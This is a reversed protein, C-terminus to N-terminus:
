PKRPKPSPPNELLEVIEPTGNKRAYEILTRPHHEKANPFIIDTRAGSEILLLIIRLRDLLNAAMMQMKAGSDTPKSKLIEMRGSKDIAWFLPTIGGSDPTDPRAGAALLLRVCEHSNATTAWHLPTAGVRHSKANVPLGKEILLKLTEANGQRAAFHLLNEGSEAIVKPNAGADLMVQLAEARGLGAATQLPTIHTPSGPIDPKGGSKLLAKIVRAGCHVAALDLASLGSRNLPEVKAGHELLLEVIRARDNELVQRPWRGQRDMNAVAAMLPTVGHDVARNVDAGHTILFEVGAVKEKMALEHLLTPRRATVKGEVLVEGALGICGGNCALEFLGSGDKLRADRDAGKAMLFRAMDQHGKECGTLLPTFGAEDRINIDEGEALLIEALAMSGNIAAAKFLRDKSAFRVLDHGGKQYIRKVIEDNGGEAACALVSRGENVEADLSANKSILMDVAVLSGCLAAAM